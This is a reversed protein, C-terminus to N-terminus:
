ALSVRGGAHRVLRGRLELDILAAQVRGASAGSLRIIEDISVPAASLLGEIEAEVDPPDSAHGSCSADRAEGSDAAEAFLDVPERLRGPPSEAASADSLRFPALAALVDGATEVLTAGEKLLRNAGAARPDLPHGPVAMVERGAEGAIRATILSGSGPTAEVVVVGASIGAIIRNRRPFHRAQPETGPPMESLLLCSAGIRAQLDANEPPYAIDIGGAICAITQGNGAALAGHHAATDVGRALGSVVMQGAGALAEALERAMRIGLASANRAGVIAVCPRSALSADGLAVLVPPADPTEALLPPYDASGLFLHAGGLATVAAMEAEAADCSAPAVPRRGQRALDPLAALAAEGSGFRRLLQRFGVPGVGESRFLALRSICEQRTM